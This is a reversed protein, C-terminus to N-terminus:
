PHAGFCQQLLQARLDAASATLAARRGVIVYDTGEQLPLEAILARLRRKVRNREVASGVKRGAVVTVRAAGPLGRERRHVLAVASVAPRRAAFVARVDRSSRLRQVPARSAGPTIEGLPARAAAVDGTV